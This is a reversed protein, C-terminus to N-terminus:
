KAVGGGYVETISAVMQWLESKSYCEVQAIARGGSRIDTLLLLSSSGKSASQGNDM